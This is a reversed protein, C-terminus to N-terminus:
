PHFSLPGPVTLYINFESLTYVTHGLGQDRELATQRSVVDVNKKRTQIPDSHEEQFICEHIRFDLGIALNWPKATQESWQPPGEPFGGCLLYVRCGVWSPVCLRPDVSHKKNSCSAGMSHQVCPTSSRSM